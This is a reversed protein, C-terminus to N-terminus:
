LDESVGTINTANVTQNNVSATLISDEIETMTTNTEAVIKLMKKIQRQIDIMVELDKLIKHYTKTWDDREAKIMRAEDMNNLKRTIYPNSSTPAPVYNNNNNNIQSIQTKFNLYITQVTWLPVKGEEKISKSEFNKDL